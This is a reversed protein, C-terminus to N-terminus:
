NFRHYMDNIEQAHRLMIRIKEKLQLVPAPSFLFVDEQAATDATAFLPEPSAELLAILAYTNDIENRTIEQLALLRPDSPVHWIPTECREEDPGTRDLVEQYAIVNQANCLTYYLALLSRKLRGGECFLPKDPSPTMGDLLAVARLLSSQARKLLNGALFAASHGSVLRTGQLNMLDAAEEESNAQFQYARYYAKEEDSLRMPNPVLPRTLWRQNVSGLLLLPGGEHIPDLATRCADICQWVTLMAEANAEGAEARALAYLLAVVEGYTRAPKERHLAYLRVLTKDRVSPLSVTVSGKCDAAGALGRAFPLVHPIGLVPYTNSSYFDDFFGVSRNQSPGDATQHCVSQGKRLLPRVAEVEFDPISGSIDIDAHIGADLAGQQLTTLFASMRTGFPIDRCASPGNAGPYLGRSWCVGGGSDNTLFTYVEIDAAESLTKMAERYMALVEPNDICVSYYGHRARRPHECRAGRWDPHARYVEETLWGPECGEFAGKLHLSRLIEGRARVIELNQASWEKPIWAELAKPPAVKFVSAHMMGWNPYPDSLDKEWLWRSKPLDSVYVHTAGNEAAIQALTRFEELSKSPCRVLVKQMGNGGKIKMVM